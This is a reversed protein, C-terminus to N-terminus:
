RQDVYPAIVWAAAAAGITSALVAWRTLKPLRRFAVLTALADGTDSLAGAEVWGRVDTGGQLAILAGLGLALDRSGLARAFLRVAPLRADNDGVWPRAPLSPALFAM